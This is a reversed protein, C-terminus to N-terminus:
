YENEDCRHSATALASERGGWFSQLGQYFFICLPIKKAQSTFMQEIYHIPSQEEGM